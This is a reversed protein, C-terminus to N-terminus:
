GLLASFARSMRANTGDPGQVHRGMYGYVCQSGGAIADHGRDDNNSPHDNWWGGTYMGMETRKPNAAYLGPLLENSPIYGPVENAYAAVLLENGFHQRMEKAYGSVLEGGSFIMQPRTEFRWRQVPVIMKRDFSGDASAPLMVEAHRRYWPFSPNARRKRLEADRVAREPIVLDLEVEQYASAIPGEVPNATDVQRVRAVVADALKTGVEHDAVKPNQDGAAGQIFMAFAGTEASIRECASGPFRADWQPGADGLPHCGYSFLVALPKKQGDRAVLISTTDEVADLNARNYSFPAPARTSFLHCPAPRSRVTKRVLTVIEDELWRSYREVIALQEADSMAYSIYPHLKDVLVPGDHTHTALLVFDANNRLEDLQRVGARINQNMVRPFALVDASVIVHCRDDMRLAVCRAYLKTKVPAAANVMRPSDDTAHGGLFPNRRPSAGEVDPTIEVISYSIARSQM